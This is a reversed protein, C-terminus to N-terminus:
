GNELPESTGSASKARKNAGLPMMSLNKEAFRAGSAFMLPLVQLQRDFGFRLRLSLSAASCENWCAASIRSENKGVPPLIGFTVSSTLISDSFLAAVVAVSVTAPPAWNMPWDLPGAM